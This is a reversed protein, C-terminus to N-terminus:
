APESLRAALVSEPMSACRTLRAPLMSLPVIFDISQGEQGLDGVYIAIQAGDASLVWAADRLHQEDQAAVLLDYGNKAFQHALQLGIGNSGGTIVAFPRRTTDVM